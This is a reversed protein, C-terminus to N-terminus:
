LQDIQKALSRDKETVKNESHTMLTIEAYGWGFKVDPHHKATEALKGVRNVFDLTQAFDSFEFRKTLGSTSENWM